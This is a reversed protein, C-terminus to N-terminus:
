FFKNETGAALRKINEKHKIIVCVGILVGLLMYERVSPLFSLIVPLASAAIISGLSIYRKILVVLVFLAAIILMAPPSIVLMVGCATAVGKGGKFKLFVPFLHGLFAAFGALSVFFVRMSMGPLAYIDDGIVYVYSVIYFALLTPLAGKLIDCLLTAIGAAKGASRIVNTAGINGSGTARPDKGGFIRAAIIGFPISGALYAAPIILLLM